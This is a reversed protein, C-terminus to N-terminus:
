DRLCRVSFGFDMDYGTKYTYTTSYKMYRRWANGIDNYTSTWFYGYEGLKSFSGSNRRYGAPLASYGSTNTAINPTNWHTTGTEKLNSGVDTGRLGYRDWEEDPYGYQSDVEGELIKWEEDSPVHWDNPCIGQVGSPVSSSSTEGNMTASWNYLVGYVLYNSTLKAANVDTGQYGYVYIYPTTFSGNNSPSVSPLYALNEAMWCQSGIQVTNYTQGDRLDNLLDGCVFVAQAFSIIVTDSSNGCNNSITWVLNYIAGPLGYFVTAPDLANELTGGTGSYITWLGQGNVPTNGQLVISDVPISLTDTGANANDPLGGFSIEISDSSSGCSNSITWKLFYVSDQNSTFTTYPDTDDSFSGGTGSIISWLGNGVLPLNGNLITPSCVNLQDAGADAQTPPPKCTANINGNDDVSVEYTGGNPSTLVLSSANLAYPVSLFQSIGMLTYNLGGNIDVETKIYYKSSGWNIGAFDGSILQGNGIAISVLGLSNSTVNHIESYVDAGSISDRLISIRLSISQNSIVVGTTDRVVAQYNISQPAQAFIGVSFILLGFLTFIIKRMFALYQYFILFSKLRLIHFNLFSFNFCWFLKSM